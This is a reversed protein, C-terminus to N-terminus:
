RQRGQDRMRLIEETTAFGVRKRFQRIRAVAEAARAARSEELPVLKAVPRGRKTILITEGRAVDELLASLHTKAAFAGITRM